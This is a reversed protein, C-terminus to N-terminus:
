LLGLLAPAASALGGLAKGAGGLFGGLLANNASQTYFAAADQDQQSQADINQVKQSIQQQGTTRVNNEIAEGTPSNGEVNASARVAQINDISTQLNRSMFTSTQLAKIQGFQSAREAQQAQFEAGQANANGQQIAGFVGLGTSLLSLASAGPGALGSLTGLNGLSSPLAM